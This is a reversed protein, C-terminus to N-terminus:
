AKGQGASKRRILGFPVRVIKGLSQWLFVVMSHVTTPLSYETTKNGIEEQKRAVTSSTKKSLSSKEMHTANGFLYGVVFDILLVLDCDKLRKEPLPPPQKECSQVSAVM